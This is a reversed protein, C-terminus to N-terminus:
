AIGCAMLEAVLVREIMWVRFRLRTKSPLAALAIAGVTASVPHPELEFDLEVGPEVELEVLV